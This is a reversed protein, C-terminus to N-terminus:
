ECRRFLLPSQYTTKAHSCQIIMRKANKAKSELKKTSGKIYESFTYSEIGDKRAKDRSDVTDLLAVVSPLDGTGSRQTLLEM